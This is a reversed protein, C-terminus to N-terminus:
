LAKAYIIKDDGPAYFGELRAEQRYGCREYFARTPEYRPTSSTEIYVRRARLTGCDAGEEDGPVGAGMAEEARALLVRGLGRGRHGDHVAIWYLDFSGITCPIPGFCAYGLPVGEPGDAFLFHYGSGVGRGLRERVLEEAVGIEDPRFFGTSAVIERVAGPDSARPADRFSLHPLTASTPM